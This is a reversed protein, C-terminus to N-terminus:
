SNGKSINLEQYIVPDQVVSRKRSLYMMLIAIGFGHTLMVTFLDSSLLLSRLPVLSIAVAVWIPMRGSSLDNVLKLLLGVLTAYFFVGFLGAHAYGSSVFGNNAGMDPKGLYGGIVYPIGIDGYPYIFLSSLVSNSWYVQAHTSFYDFYVFCLDAPVYFVRRSLLSSLWLDDLFSYSLLSLLMVGVCAVPLILLSDSRGLYFWVSVVLIPLFLISKHSAISFFYVQVALLLVVILYRRALLAFCILYITFVQFTWNNTYAFVGQATLEANQERYEYVASFDLNSKAGSFYFWVVLFVVFVLSLAVALVRGGLVVPLGRFNIFNQCCILYAYVLAGISILVPFVPRSADLGYLSTLPAVLSLVATAFFYHSVHRVRDSLLFLSLVYILWSSVYNLLQIDLVFGESAFSGAIVTIYSADLLARFLLVFFVFLFRHLSIKLETSKM